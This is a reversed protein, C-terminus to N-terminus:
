EPVVPAFSTAGTTRFAIGADELVRSLAYAVLDRLDEAKAQVRANIMLTVPGHPLEPVITEWGSADLSTFSLKTGGAAGEVYFKVHAVPHAARRLEDMISGIMRVLVDREEGEPPIFTVGEDFWALEAAGAVYPGYDLALAPPLDLGTSLTALWPAVGAPTSSSQLLM